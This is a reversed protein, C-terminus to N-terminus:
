VPPDSDFGFPRATYYGRNGIAKSVVHEPLEGLERQNSQYRSRARGQEDHSGVSGGRSRSDLEYLKKLSTVEIVPPITGLPGTWIGVNGYFKSMAVFTSENGTASSSSASGCNLCRPVIDRIPCAVVRLRLRMGTDSLAM